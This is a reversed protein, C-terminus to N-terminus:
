YCPTNLCSLVLEIKFRNESNSSCIKSIRSNHYKLTCYTSFAIIDISKPYSFYKAIKGRFFM